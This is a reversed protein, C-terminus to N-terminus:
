GPLEGSPEGGAGSTLHAGLRTFLDASPNRRRRLTEYDVEFLGFRPRFGELWEFNDLLSWHLYGDIRAGAARRRALVQVHDQLFACRQRDDRTAIGNETVIIPLGAGEAQQLVRGFGHPHVEWGMDTLGRKEPDRYIFEGVAGPRARFRIHVRSYYNVGVFHNAAPLGPVRFRARGKGPFRWDVDGTAIADLLTLNYLREGYQALRRDLFSGVRDPAFELMNHAIGVRSGPAQVGIVDAAEVHAHLMHEFARSARRFSKHGPPMVGAVFGGLLLVIPENLTIWIRVRPGLAAAVASVYRRFDAVCAPNEWGGQARFWGPHTFHHLTVVPEVGLRALEDVRERERLLAEDSFVGREPEVASREISFRYANAGITPLLGFDERWLSRHGSAQGCREGPVHLREQREWETWDNELAGEVQYSSTSVGWLFEPIGV